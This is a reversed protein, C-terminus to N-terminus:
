LIIFFYFIFPNEIGGTFHLISALCLLDLFFHINGISRATEVLRNGRGKILNRIQFFLVTNYLAIIACIIYVPLTPFNVHFTQTAVFTAVVTGAIVAWRLNIFIKLRTLLAVEEPTFEQDVMKEDETKMMMRVLMYM